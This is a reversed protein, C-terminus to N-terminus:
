GAATRAEYPRHHGTVGTNPGKTRLNSAASGGLDGLEGRAREKEPSDHENKV